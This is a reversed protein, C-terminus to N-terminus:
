HGTAQLIGALTLSLFIPPVSMALIQLLGVSPQYAPGFLLAVIWGAWLALAIALLTSIILLTKVLSGSIAAVSQTSQQAKM